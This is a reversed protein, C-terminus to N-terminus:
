SGTAGTPGTVGSPGTPGTVGNLGTPGTAGSAGTPGTAGNLGTPGLAGTPGTAGTGTPGLAGTPGTAGTGTPGTPGSGSPGTPGSPGALGPSGAAGQAGGAGAAGAAGTAGTAGQAGTLGAAGTPGVAGAVTGDYRALAAATEEISSGYVRRVKLGLGSVASMVGDSIAAPGGVIVVLDPSLSQLETKTPPSLSGQATVLLPSGTKGAVSAALAGDMASSTGVLFVLRVSSAAAPGVGLGGLAAFAAGGVVAGGSGFLMARRGFRTEPSDDGQGSENVM